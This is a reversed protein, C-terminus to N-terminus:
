CVCVCPGDPLIRYLTKFSKGVRRGKRRQCIM